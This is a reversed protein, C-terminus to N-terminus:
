VSHKEKNLNNGISKTWINFKGKPTEIPIIKVGGTQVEKYLNDTAITETRKTQNNCSFIVIIFFFCLLRKM